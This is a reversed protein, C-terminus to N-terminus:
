LRSLKKLLAERNPGFWTKLDAFMEATESAAGSLVLVDNRWRYWLCHLRYPKCSRKQRCQEDLMEALEIHNASGALYYVDDDALGLVLRQFGEGMAEDNRFGELAIDKSGLRLDYGEERLLRRLAVIDDRVDKLVQPDTRRHSLQERWGRLETEYSELLKVRSLFNTTDSLLRWTSSASEALRNFFARM